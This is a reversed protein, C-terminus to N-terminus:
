KRARLSAAVRSLVDKLEAALDADLEALEAAFSGSRARELKGHLRKGSVTLRLAKQRRDGDEERRSVLGKRVLRDVLRSVAGPTLGLAVSLCSGTQPGQSLLGIIIIQPFAVDHEAMIRIIGIGTAHGVTVVMDHLLEDLEAAIGAEAKKNM